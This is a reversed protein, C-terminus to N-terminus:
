YSFLYKVISFIIIFYLVYGCCKDYMSKNKNMCRKDHRKPKIKRDNSITNRTNPDWQSCRSRNSIDLVKDDELGLDYEYGPWQKKPIKSAALPILSNEQNPISEFSHYSLM